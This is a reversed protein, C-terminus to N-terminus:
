VSNSTPPLPVNEMEGGTVRSVFQKDDSGSGQSIDQVRESIGSYPVLLPVLPIHYRYQLGTISDRVRRSKCINSSVHRFVREDAAASMGATNASVEVDSVSAFVIAFCSGGRALSSWTLRFRARSRRVAM